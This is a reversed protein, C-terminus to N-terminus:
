TVSLAILGYEQNIPAASAASLRPAKGGGFLMTKPGGLGLAKAYPAQPANVAPERCQM